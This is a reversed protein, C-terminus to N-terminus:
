GGDELLGLSDYGEIEFPSPRWIAELADFYPETVAQRIAEDDSLSSDYTIRAPAAGPGPWAELKVYGPVAFEDDRELYYMLLNAKGRCTLNSIRLDLTAAVAPEQGRTKIFSPLPFLHSAAVAGTTCFLLIAVLTGMSWRRGLWSPPGWSM